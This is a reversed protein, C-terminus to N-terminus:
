TLGPWDYLSITRLYRAFESAAAVQTVAVSCDSAALNKDYIAGKYQLHRILDLNQM